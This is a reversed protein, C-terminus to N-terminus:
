RLADAQDRQIDVALWHTGNPAVAILDREAPDGSRRRFGVAEVQAHIALEGIAYRRVQARADHDAYRALRALFDNSRNQRLSECRQRQVTGPRRAHVVFSAKVHLNLGPRSV